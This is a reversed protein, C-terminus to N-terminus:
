KGKKGQKDWYSRLAIFPTAQLADGRRGTNWTLVLERRARTIGVYLLRLREAAYDVRAAETAEGEDYDFALPDNALRLQELAEAELNLSDRVFWREGIYSDQREASPFDYNNVSLLYVRDWELGKAAHMTAVAAKGKHQDPDYGTAEESLDIVRRKNQAVARLEGALDPLRWHPNNDAAKGLFVALSHAIALDPATHFLDQALTLVLQDIPLLVAGQWRRMLRRFEALLEPARPDSETLEGVVRGDLWDSGPRPWLYDEVFECKRLAKVAQELLDAAAPDDRDDRRWVKYANALIGPAGPTSLADLLLSLAGATERTSSTSRLLEIVDVNRAKLAKVMQSGRDNRPVLIALTQDPSQELWRAASKAIIEIEDGPAYDEPYLFILNPDDPPNPQPDDVPTPEIYPPQLARSRVDENPHREMSWDILFNALNIISRTSRGSNPLERAQVGDETLFRRLYEPRATTFTEYISQNPDGVRVWNGKDGVLLRLIKEQLLSSDQAEDELIYPWRHRLRDLFGEDLELARLALRILDQFDVAGRYNLGRQYNVYIAHCMEALPLPKGFRDIGYRVEDPMLEWDKAQKIFSGAVSIVERPWHERLAYASRNDELDHDLYREGATPNAKIWNQAADELIATAEREDVISFGEELGVLAPRERVIDNSLGHLTRVRYGFNPLLGRAKVFAAVQRAFNDVASNVLTVVLVEQDDQLYDGAVLKAALASLTKTKGSGPVASVGMMGGEYDLVAQQRPRPKFTDDM